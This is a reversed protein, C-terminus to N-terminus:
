RVNLAMASYLEMAKVSKHLLWFQVVITGISFLCMLVIYPQIMILIDKFIPLFVSQLMRGRISDIMSSNFFQTIMQDTLPKVPSKRRFSEASKSSRPPTIRFEKKEM